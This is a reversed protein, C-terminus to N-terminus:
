PLPRAGLSGKRLVSAVAGAIGLWWFAIGPLVFIPNWDPSLIYLGAGVVMMALSVLLQTRKSV